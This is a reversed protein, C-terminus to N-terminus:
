ATNERVKLAMAETDLLGLSFRHDFILLGLSEIEQSTLACTQSLNFVLLLGEPKLVRAIQQYIKKIQNNTMEGVRRFLSTKPSVVWDAGVELVKLAYIIDISRDGLGKLYTEIDCTVKVDPSITYWDADIGCAEAGLSKLIKLLVTREGPGLEIIKKGKIGEIGECHEIIKLFVYALDLDSDELELVNAYRERLKEVCRLLVRFEGESFTTEIKNELRDNFNM